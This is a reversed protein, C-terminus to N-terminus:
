TRGKVKLFTEAKSWIQVHALGGSGVTAGCRILEFCVFRGRGIETSKDSPACNPWISPKDVNWEARFTIKYNSVVNQSQLLPLFKQDNRVM